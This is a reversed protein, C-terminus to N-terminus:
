NAGKVSAELIKQVTNQTQKSVDVLQELVTALKTVDTSIGHVEQKLDNVDAKLDETQRQMQRLESEHRVTERVQQQLEEKIAEIKAERVQEQAVHEKLTNTFEEATKELMHEVQNKFKESDEKAEGIDQENREVQQKVKGVAMAYGIVTLGIAIYAAIVDAGM